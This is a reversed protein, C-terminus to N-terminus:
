VKTKTDSINIQIFLKRKNKQSKENDYTTSGHKIKEVIEPWFTMIIAWLFSVRGLIASM